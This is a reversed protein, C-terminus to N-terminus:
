PSLLTGIVMRTISVATQVETEGFTWDAHLAQNRLAAASKCLQAQTKTLLNTSRLANVRQELAEAEISHQECARRIADEFVISIIAGAMQLQGAELYHEVMDLYDSFVEAKARQQISVLLGADIDAVLSALIAGLTGAAWEVNEYEAASEGRRRHESSLDPALLRIATLASATWGAAAFHADGAVRPNRLEALLPPLQEMLAVVRSRIGVEIGGAM